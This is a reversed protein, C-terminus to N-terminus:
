KTLEFKLDKVGKEPVTATLESERPNSYELPIASVVDLVTETPEPEKFDPAARRKEWDDVTTEGEDAIYKEIAVAYEGPLGGPQGLTRAKFRGNEDTIATAMRAGSEADVPTLAVSAWPLPVGEYLVVGEIPKLGKLKSKNCGAFSGVFALATLLAGIAARNWKGLRM